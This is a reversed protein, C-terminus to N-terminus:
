GYAGLTEAYNASALASARQMHGKLQWFRMLSVNSIDVVAITHSLADTRDFLSSLFTSLSVLQAVQFQLRKTNM